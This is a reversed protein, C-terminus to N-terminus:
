PEVLERDPWAQRTLEDGLWLRRLAMRVQAETYNPHRSRIGDEATRRAWDNLRFAVAVREGGSMRRYAEIQRAHAATETDDPRSTQPGERHSM